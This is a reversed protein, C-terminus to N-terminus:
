SHALDERVLHHRGPLLSLQLHILAVHLSIEVKVGALCCLMCDSWLCLSGVVRHGRNVVTSRGSDCKVMDFFTVRLLKNYDIRPKKRTREEEFGFSAAAGM